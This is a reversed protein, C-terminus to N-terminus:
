DKKTPVVTMDLPRNQDGHRPRVVGDAERPEFGSDPARRWHTSTSSPSTARRAAAPAAPPTAPEQPAYEQQGPPPAPAAPPPRLHQCLIQLLDEQIVGALLILLM